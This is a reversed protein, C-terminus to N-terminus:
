SLDAREKKHRLKRGNGRNLNGYTETKAHCNPCLVRLNKFVNNRANGDIHDVQVIPRNTYPNRDSCGCEECTDNYFQKVRGLLSDLLEGDAGSGDTGANVWELFAKDHRYSNACQSSCFLRGRGTIVELCNKCRRVSPNKARATRLGAKRLQRAVESQSIKLQEAIERQTLGANVFETLVTTNINM